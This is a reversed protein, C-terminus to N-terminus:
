VFLFVYVDINSNIGADDIQALSEILTSDSTNMQFGSDGLLCVDFRLFSAVFFRCPNQVDQSQWLVMCLQLDVAKRTMKLHVFIVSDGSSFCFDMRREFRPLKQLAAAALSAMVKPNFYRM